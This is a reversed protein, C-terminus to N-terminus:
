VLGDTGSRRSKWPITTLVFRYTTRKARCSGGIRYDIRGRSPCKKSEPDVIEVRGPDSMMRSSTTSELKTKPGDRQGEGSVLRRKLM